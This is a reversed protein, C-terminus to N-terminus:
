FFEAFHARCINKGMNRIPSELSLSVFSSCFVNELIENAKLKSSDNFFRNAFKAHQSPDPDSSEGIRMLTIQLVQCGVSSRLFNRHLASIYFKM